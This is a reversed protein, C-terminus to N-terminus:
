DVRFQMFEASTRYNQLSGTGKGAVDDGPTDQEKMGKM